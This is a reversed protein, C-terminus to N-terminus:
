LTSTRKVKVFIKKWTGFFFLIPYPRIDPAHRMLNLEKTQEVTYAM